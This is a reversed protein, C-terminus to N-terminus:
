WWYWERGATHTDLRMEKEEDEEGGTTAIGKFSDRLREVHLVKLQLTHM